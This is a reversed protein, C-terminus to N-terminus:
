NKEKSREKREREGNIERAEKRGGKREGKRRRQTVMFQKKKRGKVAKSKSHM